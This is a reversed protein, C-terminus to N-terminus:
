LSERRKIEKEIDEQVRGWDHGFQRRSVEFLGAGTLMVFVCGFWHDSAAPNLPVGLFTLGAGQLGSMQLYYVMEVMCAAGLLSVLATLGLALYAVWLHRLKGFTAVRLNMMLLSAMGGPAYMVMFL